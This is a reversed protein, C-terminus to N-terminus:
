SAFEFHCEVGGVDGDAAGAVRHTRHAGDCNTSCGRNEIAIVAQIAFNKVLEIQKDAFPQPKTRSLFIVGIVKRERLLPVGLAARFGGIKQFDHRTFNPDALVDHVHVVRGELATRGAVSGRDIRVPNAEVVKHYKPTFGFRAAARFVEGDPLFIFADQAECLHTASKVLADLVTQLNFTSRSIVKLIEAAATRQELAEDRERTLRAVETEQGTVSSSHPRAAKPANRRKLTTTQRRTKAPEGGARSRRRM